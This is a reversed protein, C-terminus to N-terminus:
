IHVVLTFVDNKKTKDTTVDQILIDNVVKKLLTKKKQM